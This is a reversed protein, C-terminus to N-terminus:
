SMPRLNLPSNFESIYPIQKHKLDDEELEKMLKEMEKKHRKEEEMQELKQKEFLKNNMSKLKMREERRHRAEIM